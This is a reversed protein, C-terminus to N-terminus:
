HISDKPRPSMRAWERVADDIQLWLSIQQEDALARRLGMIRSHVAFPAAEAGHKTVIWAALM